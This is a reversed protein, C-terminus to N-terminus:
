DLFESLPRLPRAGMHSIVEAAAKSGLMGADYLSMGRALGFLVGAAYQDGAG